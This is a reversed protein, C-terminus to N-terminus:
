VLDHNLNVHVAVSLIVVLSEDDSRAFNVVRRFRVHHSYLCPSTFRLYLVTLLLCFAFCFGLLLFCRLSSDNPGGSQKGLKSGKTTTWSLLVSKPWTSDCTLLACADPAPQSAQPPHRREWMPAGALRCDAQGRLTAAHLTVKDKGCEGRKRFKDSTM